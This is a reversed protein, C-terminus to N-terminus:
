CGKCGTAEATWPHRTAAPRVATARKGPTWAMLRRCLWHFTLIVMSYHQQSSFVIGAGVPGVQAASPMCDEDSDESASPHDWKDRRPKRPSAKYRLMYGKGSTALLSSGDEALACGRM